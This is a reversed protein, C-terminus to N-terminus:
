LFVEIPFDPTAVNGEADTIFYAAIEALGNAIDTDGAQAAAIARERLDHETRFNIHYWPDDIGGRPPKITTEPDEGELFPENVVGIDRWLGLGVPMIVGDVDHIVGMRKGRDILIPLKSVRCRLYYDNM